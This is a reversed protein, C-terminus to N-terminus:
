ALISGFWRSRMANRRTQEPLSDRPMFAFSTRVPLGIATEFGTSNRAASRSSAQLRRAHLVPETYGSPQVRGLFVLDCAARCCQRAPPGQDHFWRKFPWFETKHAAGLRRMEAFREAAAARGVLMELLGFGLGAM